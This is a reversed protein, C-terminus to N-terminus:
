LLLALSASFGRHCDLTRAAICEGKRGVDGAHRFNGPHEVLGDSMKAPQVDQKVIGFAPIMNPRVTLAVVLVSNSRMNLTLKLPVNKAQWCAAM